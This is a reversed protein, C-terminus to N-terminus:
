NETDKKVMKILEIILEGIMIINKKLILYGLITVLCNEINNNM